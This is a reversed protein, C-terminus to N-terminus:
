AAAERERARQRRKRCKADCSQADSRRGALTRGCAPCTGAGTVSITVSTVSLKISPPSINGLVGFVAAFRKPDPGLYFFVNDNFGSTRKGKKDVAGPGDFKIRKRKECRWARTALEQFWDSGPRANLLAIAQTCIGAEYQAILKTVFETPDSYPCNFWVRGRWKNRKRLGDNQLTYIKRARVVRNAVESSTPDCDIDGMVDRALRIFRVPTYCEDSPKM